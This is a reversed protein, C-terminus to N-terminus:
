LCYGDPHVPLWECDATEERDLSRYSDIDHGDSWVSETEHCAGKTKREIYKGHKELLENILMRNAQEAPTWDTEKVLNLMYEIIRLWRAQTGRELEDFDYGKKKRVKKIVALEFSNCM